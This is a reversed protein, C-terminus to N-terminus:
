RDVAVVAGVVEVSAIESSAVVLEVTRRPGVTLAPMPVVLSTPAAGCEPAGTCYAQASSSDLPDAARACALVLAHPADPCGLDIVAGRVTSGAAVTVAAVAIGHQVTFAAPPLVLDAPSEACGALALAVLVAALRVVRFQIRVFTQWREVGPGTMEGIVFGNAAIAPFLWGTM